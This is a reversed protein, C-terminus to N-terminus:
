VFRVSHIMPLNSHLCTWHGGRDASHYCNGTTTGFVLEDNQYDLAHRYTIDFAHAQPLGNRQALWTKGGDHTASVCLALDMAVRTADSDAPVVWASLPDDPDAAIAFGFRAPGDPQSIEHWREGNDTSRFIGCHNQQWLVDPHQLSRVLLHPDHGVEMAPDPLFDARLGKNRVQWTKGSDPSFFVGACSIGIPIRTNDRPDVLISHIGADDRGGGFWQEARGPFDWLSRVLSFTAGRDESLFLGGPETGVWIGNPFQPGGPAFAWLYKVTAPKGPKTEDGEAFAPGALEQWTQGEDDSRHLKCGWHGHDLMAWWSGQNDRDALTVPFGTFHVRDLTWQGASHRYVVLGKRTGLLLTDAM